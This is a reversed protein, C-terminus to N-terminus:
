WWGPRVEARERKTEPTGWPQKARERKTKPTGWPQKARERKM